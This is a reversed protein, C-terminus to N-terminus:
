DADAVEKLRDAALKTLRAAESAFFDQAEVTTLQALIASTLAISRTTAAQYEPNNEPDDPWLEEEIPGLVESTANALIDEDDIHLESTAQGADILVTTWADRLIYEEIREARSLTAAAM